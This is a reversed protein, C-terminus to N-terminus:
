PPNGRRSRTPTSVSHPPNAPLEKPPKLHPISKEGKESIKAKVDEISEGEEVEISVTKGQLTKVFLQMGGRLEFLAPSLPNPLSCSSASTTFARGSFLSRKADWGRALAAQVTLLFVSVITLLKMNSYRLTDATDKELKKTASDGVINDVRARRAAFGRALRRTEELPRLAM